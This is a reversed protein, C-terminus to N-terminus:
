LTLRALMVCGTAREVVAVDHGNVVFVYAEAPAGQYTLGAQYIPAHLAAAAHAAQAECTSVESHPSAGGGASTATPAPLTTVSNANVAPRLASALASPSTYAGLAPGFV